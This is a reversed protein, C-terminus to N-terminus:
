PRGGRRLRRTRPTAGHDIRVVVPAHLGLRLEAADFLRDVVFRRGEVRYNVLEDGDPGIVFLPPLEASAVAEPFDIYTRRGDDFVREPTWVPRRGRVVRVRYNFHFAEIAADPALNTQPYTWSLEAAYGAGATANAEILYTRRTTVVVINTRLGSERPKVLVVARPELEGGTEAQTVMWRSTDGAAMATVSEGPQLLVASVFAPNAYLEFIAGPAYAYVLRASEFRAQAAGQRASANASTLADPVRRQVQAWCEPAAALLLVAAISALSLRM